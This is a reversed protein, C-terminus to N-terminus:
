VGAIIEQLVIDGVSNLSIRWFNNSDQRRFQLHRSDGTVTTVTWSLVMNAQGNTLPPSEMPTVAPPNTLVQYPPLQQYKYKEAYGDPLDTRDALLYLRAIEDADVYDVLYAVPAMNPRLTADAIGYTLRIYAGLEVPTATNLLEWLTRGQSRAALTFTATSVPASHAVDIVVSDM